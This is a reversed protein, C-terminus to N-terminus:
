GTLSRITPHEGCVPCAPDKPVTLERFTMALADYVVMRGVLANGAGVIMKIAETAQIAGVVGPLVGLVGSEACTPVLGPPPPEPFVCRYCPGGAAAFVSAQGEFVFVAGFVDPKGLLVCADNVLYRTPFNDSCDLVLDYRGVIDLANDAVLRLHHTEVSVHPNIATLRRRASVVKPEGIGATEHLIQRQLNCLDVADGDLIGITGVGAAALYLSSPSGLGGAGVCLVRAAKLRQQGEAGVGPLVVHRAYREVEEPSLGPLANVACAYL